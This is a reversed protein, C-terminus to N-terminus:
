PTIKEVNSMFFNWLGPSVKLSSKIPTLEPIEYPQFPHNYLDERQVTEIIMDEVTWTKAKHCYTDMSILHVKRKM